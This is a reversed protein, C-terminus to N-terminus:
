ATPVVIKIVSRGVRPVLREEVLVRGTSDHVSVVRGLWSQDVEVIGWSDPYKRRGDPGMLVVDLRPNGDQDCLLVPYCEQVQGRNRKMGRLFNGLPGAIARTAAAAATILQALFPLIRHSVGANYM